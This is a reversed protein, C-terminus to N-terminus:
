CNREHKGTVTIIESIYSNFKYQFDEVWCKPKTDNFVKLIVKIDKGNQEVGIAIQEEPKASVSLSFVKAVIDKVIQKAIFLSVLHEEFEEISWHGM